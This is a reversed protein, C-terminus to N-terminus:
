KTEETEKKNSNLADELRIKEKTEQELKKKYKDEVENRVTKKEKEKQEELAEKEILMRRQLGYEAEKYLENTYCSGGNESCMAEKMEFFDDVQETNSHRFPDNYFAIFRNGCQSLITKLKNPVTEVFQDISQNHKILKDKMTFLVIMHRFVGEGFHNIFHKVTDEEEQTFRGVSVVLVMAHPGPSTMGICKVIEKTVNANTTTTDFLGPTDVIVVNKGKRESEGRKCNGTVSSGSNKSLFYNRGLLSNGTASKGAGTRGLLVIRIEKDEASAQLDVFSH